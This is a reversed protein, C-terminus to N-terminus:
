AMEALRGMAATPFKEAKAAMAAKVVPVSSVAVEYMAM